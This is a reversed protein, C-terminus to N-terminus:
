DGFNAVGSQELKERFEEMTKCKDAVGDAFFAISALAAAFEAVAVGQDVALNIVTKVFDEVKGGDTGMLVSMAKIENM